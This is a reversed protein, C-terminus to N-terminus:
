RPAAPHPITNTLGMRALEQPTIQRTPVTYVIEEGKGDATPQKQVEFFPMNPWVEIMTRAIRNTDPMIWSVDTKGFAVFLLYLVVGTGTLGWLRRSKFTSLLFKL